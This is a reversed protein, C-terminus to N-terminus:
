ETLKFNRRKEAKRRLAQLRLRYLPTYWYFSWRRRMKANLRKSREYLEADMGNLRLARRRLAQDTLWYHPYSVNHRTLSAGRLGIWRFFHQCELDFSQTLGVYYFSELRSLAGRFREATVPTGYDFYAMFSHCLYGAMLNHVHPHSELWEEFSQLGGDARYPDDSLVDASRPKGRWYDVNFNYQSILREVPDRVVTLYRAPRGLDTHVGDYVDHGFVVDLGRRRREELGLVTARRAPHGAQQYLELYREAPLGERVQEGFSTGACKPIHLFAYVPRM